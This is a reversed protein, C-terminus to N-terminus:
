QQTPGRLASACQGHMLVASTMETTDALRQCTTGQICRIITFRARGAKAVQRARSGVTREVCSGAGYHEIYSDLPLNDYQLSRRM